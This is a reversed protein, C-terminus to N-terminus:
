HDHLPKLELDLAFPSTTSIRDHHVGTAVYRGTADDLEYTYIAFAPATQETEVRWFHRIGAEAYLEPHARRDKRKTSPSVVEVVLIVLEARIPREYPDHVASYVVIDPAIEVPETEDDDLLVDVDTDIQQTPPATDELRTALRRAIRQHIPRRRPGIVLEGHVLSARVPLDEPLAEFEARTWTAGSPLPLTLAHM